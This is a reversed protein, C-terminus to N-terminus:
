VKVKKEKRKGRKGKKKNEAKEERLDFHKSGSIADEPDFMVLDLEAADKEDESKDNEEQFYHSFSFKYFFSHGQLKNM